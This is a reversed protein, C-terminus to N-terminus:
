SPGGLELFILISPHTYAPGRDMALLPYPPGWSSLCTARLLVAPQMGKQKANGPPMERPCSAPPRRVGLDCLHPLCGVRAQYTEQIQARGGGGGPQLLGPQPPCFCTKEQPGGHSEGARFLGMIVAFMISLLCQM